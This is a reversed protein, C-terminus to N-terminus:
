KDSYLNESFYKKIFSQLVIDKIKHSAEILETSNFVKNLFDLEESWLEKSSAKVRRLFYLIDNNRKSMYSFLACDNPFEKKFLEMSEEWGTFIIKFKELSDIYKNNSIGRYAFNCYVYFPIEQISNARNLSASCIFVDENCSVKINDPITTFVSDLLSKKFWKNWCTPTVKKLYDNNRFSNLNKLVQYNNSIEEYCIEDKSFNCRYNYVIIDSECINLIINSVTDEIEDDGDIFWVYEGVAYSLAYKKSSLQCLNYGRSLVKCSHYKQFISIAPIETNKFEERNDVLILEFDCIVKKDINDLLSPLFQFDKDCFLSIITLKKM